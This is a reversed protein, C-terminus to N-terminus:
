RTNAEHQLANTSHSSTSSGIGMEDNITLLHPKFLGMIGVEPLKIM